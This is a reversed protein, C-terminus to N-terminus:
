YPWFVYMRTGILVGSLSILSGVIFEGLLLGLFFPAARRYGQLGSYRFLLLKFAWTLLATSWLFTSAYGSSLAYGVPHFPFAAFRTRLAQLLLTLGAGAAIGLLSDSHVGRVTDGLHASMLNYAERGFYRQTGAVKATGQGLTYSLHLIGGFATLYGILGGLILALTLGRLPIRREAALKYGELQHPLPHGAFERGMWHTLALSALGPPGLTDTGFLSYIVPGPAALLLGAAPPGYQARVRTLAVVVALYIGLFLGAVLLSMGAAVLLLYMVATGFVAGLLAAPSAPPHPSPTRRPAKPPASRDSPHSPDPRDSGLAWRRVGWAWRGVGLGRRGTWLAFGLLAMLSGFAQERVFPAIAEAASGPIDYGFAAFVVGQARGFWYFFWVSFLLDLPLFFELGILFPNLSYYIPNLAAWPRSWGDLVLPQRKVPFAPVNPYLLNLANLVNVTAALTFGLWLLWSRYLAGGPETMLLPIQTIPYALREHVMWQRRVLACVCVGTLLLAAFFAGWGLFAPLWARLASMTFPANGVWYDRVADADSVTLWRPLHPLLVQGWRNDAGAFRYPYTLASVLYETSMAVSTALAGMLFLVLLEPQTLAGHPRWRRVAANGVLTLALTFVVNFYLSLLSAYGQNWVVEMYTMWYADVAALAAGLLLTRGWRVGPVVTV